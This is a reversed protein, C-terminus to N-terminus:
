YFVCYAGTATENDVGPSLESLGNKNDISSNTNTLKSITSVLAGALLMDWWIDGTSAWLEAM